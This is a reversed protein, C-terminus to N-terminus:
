FETVVHCAAYQSTVVTLGTTFVLPTLQPYEAFIGGMSSPYLALLVTGSAATNDYFTITGTGTSASALIVRIKGPGSHILKGASTNAPDFNNSGAYIKM